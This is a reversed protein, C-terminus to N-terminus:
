CTILLRVLVNEEGGLFHWVKEEMKFLDSPMICRLPRLGSIDRWLFDLAPGEFARCTRALAALTALRQNLLGMICDERIVECVLGLIEPVLLCQHVM